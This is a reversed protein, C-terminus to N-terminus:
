SAKEITFPTAEVIELNNKMFPSCEHGL